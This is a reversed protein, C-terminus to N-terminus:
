HRRVVQLPGVAREGRDGSHHEPSLRSPASSFQRSPRGVHLERGRAALPVTPTACRFPVSIFSGPPDGAPPLTLGLVGDDASQDRHIPLVVLPGLHEEAEGDLVVGFMEARPDVEPVGRPVAAPVTVREAVVVVRMRQRREIGGWADVDRVGVELEALITVAPRDVLLAPM